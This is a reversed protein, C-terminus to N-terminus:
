IKAVLKDVVNKVDESKMPYKYNIETELALRLRKPNNRYKHFHKVDFKTVFKDIDYDINDIYMKALKKAARSYLIFDDFSINGYENPAQLQKFLSTIEDNRQMLKQYAKKVKDINDTHACLNRISRYYDCIMYCLYSFESTKRMGLLSSHIHKLMPVGKDSKPTYIGYELLFDNMEDLFGDFSQFVTIIYYERVKKIAIQPPVDNVRIGFTSAINQFSDEDHPSNEFQRLLVEIYENMADSIGLNDKFRNYIVKQM